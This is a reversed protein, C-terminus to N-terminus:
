FTNSYMLLFLLNKFDCSNLVLNKPVEVIKKFIILIIKTTFLNHVIFYMEIIVKTEMELLAILIFM